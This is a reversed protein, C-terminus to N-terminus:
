AFFMTYVIDFGVIFLLPFVAYAIPRAKERCAKVSEIFDQKEADSLEDSLQDPTPIDNSIGRNVAVFAILLVALLLYYIVEVAISFPYFRTDQLAWAALYLGGFCICSLGLLMVTRRRDHTAKVEPLSSYREIVSKKKRRKGKVKYKSM